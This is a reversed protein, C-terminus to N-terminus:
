EPVAFKVFVKEIEPVACVKGADPKNVPVVSVCVKVFLLMAALSIFEPTSDDARKGVSTFKLLETVAM